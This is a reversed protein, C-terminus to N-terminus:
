MLVCDHLPHQFPARGVGLVGLEWQFNVHSFPPAPFLVKSSSSLSIAVTVKPDPMISEQCLQDLATTPSGHHGPSQPFVNGPSAMVKPSLESPERSRGQSVLCKIQARFM